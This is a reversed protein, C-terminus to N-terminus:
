CQEQELQFRQGRQRQQKYIYIVLIDMKIKTAAFVQNKEKLLLITRVSATRLSFTKELPSRMISDNPGTM